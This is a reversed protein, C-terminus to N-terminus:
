QKIRAVAARTIERVLDEPIMHDPTFHIGGKTSKFGRLPDAFAAHVTGTFFTCHKTFAAYHVVNKKGLKLTPIGYSIVEAADPLEERLIARLALLADRLAPSEIGALYAEVSEAAKM